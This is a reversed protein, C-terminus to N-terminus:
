FYTFFRFGIIKMESGERTVYYSDIQYFEEKVGLIKGRSYATLPKVIYHTPVKLPKSFSTKFERVREAFSPDRASLEAIYARLKAAGQKLQQAYAPVEATSSPFDRNFVSELEPPFKKGDPDIVLFMLFGIQMHSKYASILTADDVNTVDVDGFKRRLGCDGAPTESGKDM